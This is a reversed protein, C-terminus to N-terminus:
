GMRQKLGLPRPRPLQVLNQALDVDAQVVAHLADVGEGEQEGGEEEVEM